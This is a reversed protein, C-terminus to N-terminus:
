NIKQPPFISTQVDNFTADLSSGFASFSTYFLLNELELLVWLSMLGLLNFCLSPKIEWETVMLESVSCSPQLSLHLPGECMKERATKAEWPGDKFELWM